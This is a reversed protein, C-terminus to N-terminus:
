ASPLDNKRRGTAVFVGIMLIAAVVGLQLIRDAKLPESIGEESNAEDANGDRAQDPEDETESASKRGGGVVPRVGHEDWFKGDDNKAVVGRLKKLCGDFSTDSAQYAIAFSPVDEPGPSDSPAKMVVQAASEQGRLLTVVIQKPEIEVRRLVCGSEIEGGLEHPAFLGMVVDEKGAPIVPAASAASSWACVLSSLCLAIAAREWSRGSRRFVSVTRM